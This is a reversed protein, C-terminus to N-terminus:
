ENGLIEISASEESVLGGLRIKKSEFYQESAAEFELYHKSKLHESFATEDQYIEYLVFAVEAENTQVVDFRHCGIENEFSAIANQILLKKSEERSANSKLSFEVIVVYPDPTTM